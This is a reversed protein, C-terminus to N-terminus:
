AFGTPTVVLTEAISPIPTEQERFGTRCVGKALVAAAYVVIGGAAASTLAVEQGAEASSNLDM